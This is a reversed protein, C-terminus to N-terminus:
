ERWCELGLWHEMADFDRDAHLLPTAHTICWAGIVLDITGRITVGKARLLRYHKAATLAIETGCLEVIEFARLSQLVRAATKEDTVGRMIEALILDGIIVECTGIAQDLAAAGPSSTGRFYDVWVSSDALLRM